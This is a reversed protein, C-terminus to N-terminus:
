NKTNGNQISRQWQMNLRLVNKSDSAYEVSRSLQPNRQHFIFENKSWANGERDRDDKSLSELQSLM